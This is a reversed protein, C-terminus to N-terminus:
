SKSTMAEDYDARAEELEEILEKRMRLLATVEVNQKRFQAKFFNLGHLYHWRKLWGLAILGSAVWSLLALVEVWWVTCDKIFLWLGLYAVLFILFGALLRVAGEFDKRRVVKRTIWGTLHYPIGNVVAGYVFVPSLLLLYVAIAWLPRKLAVSRVQKERLQLRNLRYQYAEMRERFQMVRLPEQQEFHHVANAIQSALKFDIAVDKEVPFLEKKLTTHYVTKIQDILVDLQENEVTVILEELSEKITTTLTEVTSREDKQYNELYEDVPIPTGFNVFLESRFHHANTYNIGVPVILTGKAPPDAMAAGLAIRATGTKVKKLRPEIHSIGEPFIILCKNNALHENCKAFVAKNEGMKDPTEDPRYIPIMNIQAFVFRAIATGFSEGRALFFLPRKVYVSVVIPDLFAGGHNAVFIVPGKSPVRDQNRVSIKRFYLRVSIMM